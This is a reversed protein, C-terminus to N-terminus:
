QDHIAYAILKQDPFVIVIESDSGITYFSGPSALAKCFPKNDKWKSQSDLCKFENLADFSYNSYADVDATSKKIVPTEQWPGYTSRSGRSTKPLQNLASLGRNGIKVAFADPLEFVILGTEYTLTRDVSGSVVAGAELGSPLHSRESDTSNSECASSLAIATISGIWLLARRMTSHVPCRKEHLGTRVHLLGYM